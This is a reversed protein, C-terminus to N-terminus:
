KLKGELERKWNGGEKSGVVRGGGGALLAEKAEGKVMGALM